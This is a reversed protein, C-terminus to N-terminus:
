HNLVLSSPLCRAEWHHPLFVSGLCFPIQGEFVNCRCWKIGLTSFSTSHCENSNISLVSPTQSLLLTLALFTAFAVSLM